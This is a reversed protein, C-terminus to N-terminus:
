VPVLPSSIGWGVGDEDASPDGGSVKLSQETGGLIGLFSPDESFSIFDHHSFDPGRYVSTHRHWASLFDGGREKFGKSGARCLLVLEPFPLFCFPSSPSSFRINRTQKRLWARSSPSEPIWLHQRIIAEASLSPVGEVVALLLCGGGWVEASLPFMSVLM